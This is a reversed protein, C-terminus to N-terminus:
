TSPALFFLNQFSIDAISDYWGLAAEDRGLRTLVEAVAYRDFGEPFPFTAARGEAVPGLAAFAGALRGNALALQARISRAFARALVRRESSDTAPEGMKALADARRAAAETDGLRFNSLGLLYLQV